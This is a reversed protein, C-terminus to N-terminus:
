RVGAPADALADVPVWANGDSLYPVLIHGRLLVLRLSGDAMRAQAAYGTVPYDQALLCHALSVSIGYTSQLASVAAAVRRSHRRFVLWGACVTLGVLAIATLASLM